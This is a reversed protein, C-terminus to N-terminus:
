QGYKSLIDEAIGADTPGSVTPRYFIWKTDLIFFGGPDDGDASRLIEHNFQPSTAATPLFMASVLLGTIALASVPVKTKRM